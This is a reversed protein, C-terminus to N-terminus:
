PRPARARSPRPPSARPRSAGTTHAPTLFLSFVQVIHKITHADDTISKAIALRHGFALGLQFLFVSNEAALVLKQALLHVEQDPPNEAGGALAQVRRLQCQKGDLRFRLFSGLGLRQGSGLALAGLGGGRAQGLVQRHDLFDDLGLRDFGIRLLPPADALFDAFLQIVLRAAENAAARDARGIDVALVRVQSRRGRRQRGLEL